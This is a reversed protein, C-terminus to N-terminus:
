RQEETVMAVAAALGDYTAGQYRAAFGIGRYAKFPHRETKTDQFKEVTGVTRGDVAVVWREPRGEGTAAQIRVTSMKQMGM